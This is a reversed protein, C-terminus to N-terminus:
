CRVSVFSLSLSRRRLGTVAVCDIVQLL